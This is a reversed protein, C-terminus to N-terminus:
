DVVAQYVLNRIEKRLPYPNQWMQAMLIAILEEKPDIWFITTAAGGWHYIGKSGLAIRPHETLVGFGLGFGNHGEIDPREGFGSNTGEPLHNITMIEVTKPSLLRVGNLVGGNLMMQSFRMYDMATSVLGGGGSFNTVERTYRSTEPRDRVSLKGEESWVHNTGFRALKDAPVQFFTDKMGLPEFVRQELFRDLPVGSIVEILRGLVDTSVSYNWRDGPQYQLPIKGLKEVMEELNKSDLIGAERYAQDVLTDSFIGYTLGATHSMLERITFPHSQEVEHDNVLVRTDKFAPLYKAVPDDLLFKGEEHLMMAATTVIPKTMSYIRFLSDDKLPAGSDLNLKGVTEFHIIKGRRAVLTIVGALKNDDVYQQMFPKIRELRDSSMGVAEPRARDLGAAVAPLCVLVLIGIILHKM